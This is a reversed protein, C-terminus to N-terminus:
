NDNSRFKIKIVVKGSKAFFSNKLEGVALLLEERWKHCKRTMANDRICKLTLRFSKSVNSKFSHNM